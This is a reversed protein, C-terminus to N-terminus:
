PSPVRDEPPGATEDGTLEARNPASVWRWLAQEASMVPMEPLKLTAYGDAGALGEAVVDWEWGPADALVVAMVPDEAEGESAASGEPTRLPADEEGDLPAYLDPSQAFLLWGDTTKVGGIVVVPSRLDAAAGGLFFRPGAGPGANLDCTGEYWTRNLIV